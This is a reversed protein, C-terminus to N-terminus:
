PEGITGVYILMPWVHTFMPWMYTPLKKLLKRSGLAWHTYIFAFDSMVKLKNLVLKPYTDKDYNQKTITM